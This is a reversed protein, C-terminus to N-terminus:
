EMGSSHVTSFQCSCTRTEDCLRPFHRSTWQGGQRRQRAVGASKKGDKAFASPDFSLIGDEEGITFAVQEVLRKLMRKHEWKNEGIFRQLSQRPQASRYAISEVNKKSLDSLLGALFLQANDRTESRRFDKFFPEGFQQLRRVSGAITRQEIKADAEIERKRIEFRREV